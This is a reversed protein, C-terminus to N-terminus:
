VVELYAQALQRPSLDAAQFHAALRGSRLIGVEDTDLSLHWLDHTTLLIAAGERSLERLLAALQTVAAPDLGSTPEDLLLVRARRALALALAVRQRMGKSYQALRRAGDVRSIGVRELLGVAESAHLRCGSLGAFYALNEVGTLEPYLSVNEPIYAIRRRVEAAHTTPDLGDVRLSGKDPHLFGLILNLTTTKGAGNGGLVGFVRGAPVRLSLNDLVPRTGFTKSINELEIM